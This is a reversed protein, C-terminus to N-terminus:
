VYGYSGFAYDSEFAVLRGALQMTDDKPLALRQLAVREEEIEAGLERGVKVFSETATQIRFAIQHPYVLRLLRANLANVGGAVHSRERLEGDDRGRFARHRRDVNM